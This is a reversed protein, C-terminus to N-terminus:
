VGQLGCKEKIGAILPGHIKTAASKVKLHTAFARAKALDTFLVEIQDDRETKLAKAKLERELAVWDDTDRLGVLAPNAVVGGAAGGPPPLLPGGAAAPAPPAPPAPPPAGGGVVPVVAAPSGGAVVGGGGVGGAAPPPPPPPAAAVHAVLPAPVPQPAPPAAPAGGVGAAGGGVGGAAPPPPPPPAAAVHAVLPAPVPQPAPPAAPPPAHIVAAAGGGPAPPPTLAADAANIAADDIPDGVAPIPQAAGRLAAFEDRVTAIAQPLTVVDGRAAAVRRQALAGIVAALPAQDAAAQRVLFINPAAELVERAAQRAAAQEDADTIGATANDIDRMQREIERDRAAETATATSAVLRARAAARRAAFDAGLAGHIPLPASVVALGILSLMIKLFERM